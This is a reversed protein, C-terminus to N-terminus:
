KFSKKSWYNEKYVNFFGAKLRRFINYSKDKEKKLGFKMNWSDRKFPIVQAIPTGAPILGEFKPDNLVFPFNVPHNYKDTDVIGPFITFPLDRHQPTIFLCSYGLPTEISWQNQFKPYKLGWNSPHLKAQELSHFSILNESAWQLFPVDKNEKEDFDQTIYLDAPSFIIYGSTMADFVPMCKKITALTQGYEGPIKKGGIFTDTKKYWDPLVNDAPVPKFDNNEYMNTFVINM